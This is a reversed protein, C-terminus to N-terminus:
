LVFGMSFFSISDWTCSRNSLPKTCFLKLGQSTITNNTGLFSPLHRIHQSQLAMLLMVMLYLCGMRLSSLINSSNCPAFIKELIPIQKFFSSNTNRTTWMSFKKNLFHMFPSKHSMIPYCFNQDHKFFFEKPRIHPFLNLSM